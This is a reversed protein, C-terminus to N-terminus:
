QGLGDCGKATLVLQGIDDEVHSRALSGDRSVAEDQCSTRRDELEHQERLIVEKFSRGVESGRLRNKSWV